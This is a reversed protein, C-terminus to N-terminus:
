LYELVKYKMIQERNPKIIYILENAKQIPDNLNVKLETKAGNEYDDFHALKCIWDM